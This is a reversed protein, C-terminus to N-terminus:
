PQKLKAGRQHHSGQLAIQLFSFSTMETATSFEDGQRQSHEESLTCDEPRLLRSVPHDSVLIRRHLNRLLALTHRKIVLSLLSEIDLSSSSVALDHTESDALISKEANWTVQLGRRKVTILSATTQRLKVRTRWTDCRRM